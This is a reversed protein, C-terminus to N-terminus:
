VLKINIELKELEKLISAPLKNDTIILDFDELDCIKAFKTIGFKSSDTVLVSKGAAKIMQKKVDAKEFTPTTIGKELDISSTGIFSIDVNINRLFESTGPGICAGVMNQVHGGTCFVRFKHNRALYGAIFVDSTVITLDKKDKLRKAIEMTTTGADLLITQGDKVLSVAYQAIRKKEEKNRVRKEKLPIEIDLKTNLIAGGHTRVILNNDELYQLDRRITMTSVDFNKALEEVTASKNDELYTMILHRREIQLM